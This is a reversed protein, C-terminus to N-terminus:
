QDPAKLIHTGSSPDSLERVKQDTFGIKTLITLDTHAPGLVSKLDALHEVKKGQQIKSVKPGVWNIFIDKTVPDAPLRILAYQIQDEKLHGSLEDVGAFGHGLLVINNTNGSYGVLVWGRPTSRDLLLSIAKRINTPDVLTVVSLKESDGSPKASASTAIEPAKKKINEAAAQRHREETQQRSRADAELTAQTTLRDEVDDLPKLVHTGSSPLSLEWLTQTNFRQRTLATLDTHSPGLVSKVDTLHENKKEENL